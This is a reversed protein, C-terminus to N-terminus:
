CNGFMRCVFGGKRARVDDIGVQARQRFSAMWDHAYHALVYRYHEDAVESCGANLARQGTTLVMEAAERLSSKGVNAMREIAIRGTVSSVEGIRIGQVAFDIVKGMSDALEELRTAIGLDLKWNDSTCSSHFIGDHAEIFYKVTLARV